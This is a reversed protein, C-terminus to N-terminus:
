KRRQSLQGIPANEKMVKSHKKLVCEPPSLTHFGSLGPSSAIESSIVLAVQELVHLFSLTQSRLQHSTLSTRRSWRFSGEEECEGCADIM